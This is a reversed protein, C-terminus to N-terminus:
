PRALPHPPAGAGRALRVVGAGALGGFQALREVLDLGRIRLGTFVGLEGFAGVPEGVELLQAECRRLGPCEDRRLVEDVASGIRHCQDVARAPVEVAHDLVVGCERRDGLHQLAGAEEERIRRGLEGAVEGTEVGVARALELDHLFAAGEDGREDTAM